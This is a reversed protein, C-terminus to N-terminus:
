GNGLDPDRDVGDTPHEGASPTSGTGGSEGNQEEFNRRCEAHARIIAFEEPHKILWKKVERTSMSPSSQFIVGEAYASALLEVSREESIRGLQSALTYPKVYVQAAARYLTNLDIFAPGFDFGVELYEFSIHLPDGTM